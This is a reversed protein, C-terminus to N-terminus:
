VMEQRYDDSDMYDLFEDETLNSLNNIDELNLSNNNAFDSPYNRQVYIRETVKEKIEQTIQEILELSIHNESEWEVNDVIMNNVYDYLTFKVKGAKNFIGRLFFDPNNDPKLMELTEDDQGSPSVDMHVHSHGWFKIKDVLDIQNKEILEMIFNSQGDTTITTNTGHVTQELLFVDELYYSTESEKILSGLWGIETKVSQIYIQMKDLALQSIVIKPLKNMLTVKVPDKIKNQFM